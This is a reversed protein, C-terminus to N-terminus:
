CQTIKNAAEVGIQVADSVLGSISGKKVASGDNEALMFDIDLNNDTIKAYAGLPIQCSGNLEKMFARESSVCINTEAHNIHSLLEIISQNGASCEVGIAGQAVAPTMIVQPIVSKILDSLGLRNLGAVALITADAQGEELKRLRTQVNGRFPKIQIDPRVALIQSARRLSSTGVVANKPLDDLSNYKCSMFADFPNERPLICTIVLGEPIVAPMDKMSHVAIHIESSLLASEIEETFLGKGGIEMLSRDLIRDGKTSMPVIEIDVGDPLENLALLKDRVEHAQALALKSSRTGLKIIQPLNM